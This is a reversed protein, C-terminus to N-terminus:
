RLKSCYVHCNENQKKVHHANKGYELDRPKSYTPSIDEGQEIVIQWNM